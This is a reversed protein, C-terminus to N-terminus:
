RTPDEGRDLAEWVAEAAAPAQAPTATVAPAPPDYRASMGPWRRSRLVTGLGGAFLAAGGLAATLPWIARAIAM